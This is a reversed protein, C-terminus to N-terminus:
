LAAVENCIIDRVPQSFQFAFHGISQPCDVRKIGPGKLYGGGPWSANPNWINLIKKVNSRPITDKKDLNYQPSTDMNILLDIQQPIKKQALMVAVRAAQIGGGSYGGLVCIDRAACEAYIDNACRNISSQMYSKVPGFKALQSELGTLGVSTIFGDWGVLGGWIFYMRKM